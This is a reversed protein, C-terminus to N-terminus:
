SRGSSLGHRYGLLSLMLSHTDVIGSVPSFLAKVCQVEPEMRMVESAEVLRLGHVGNETGRTLLSNLRPIELERTAVILKGIQKHPVDHESCYRYMM